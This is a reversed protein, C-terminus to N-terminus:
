ATRGDDGAEQRVVRVTSELHDVAFFVRYVQPQRGYHLVRVPHAPAIGEPAIPCRDLM